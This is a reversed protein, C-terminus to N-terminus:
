ATASNDVNTALNMGTSERIFSVVENVIATSNQMFSPQSAMLGLQFPILKLAYPSGEYMRIAMVIGMANLTMAFAQALLRTVFTNNGYSLLLRLPVEYMFGLIHGLLYQEHANVGMVLNEEGQSIVKSM